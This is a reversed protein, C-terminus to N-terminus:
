VACHESTNERLRGLLAAPVFSKKADCPICAPVNISCSSLFHTPAHFSVSVQEISYIKKKKRWRAGLQELIFSKITEGIGMKKKKPEVVVMVCCTKRGEKVGKKLIGDSAWECNEIFFRWAWTLKRVSYLFNHLLKLKYSRRPNM